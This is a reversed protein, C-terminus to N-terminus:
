LTPLTLQPQSLYEAGAGTVQVMEEITVVGYRPVTLRPEITFVMGEEIAEFPKQAYKEWAPGLLATGDHAFRGVQHGLAHPFEAYGSNVIVSRAAADVDIGKAGPKMVGRAAEISARITEFGRVVEGPASTEGPRKVYYTRQLDSCYGDVRLGFDFNIIHGGEVNRDTPGYHAGATDPGTFVSPCTAEDWAYGVGIERVMEKMFAALQKESVGIRIVREVASYIVLTKVIASKIANVETATKRQRLASILKEASVLRGSMGAEDLISNLTLYMGHTLGDCVESGESFNAGITGPNLEKLYRILPERIGKVYGEVVDYVGLDDVTAKDLSGVIARTHGNKDVILASHWTLPSNVLYALTPDGNLDSERVFTIWCDIGFEQVLQSAQNIKERILM